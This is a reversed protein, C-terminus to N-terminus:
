KKVNNTKNDTKLGCIETPAPTHSRSCLSPLTPIPGIKKQPDIKLVSNQNYSEFSKLKWVPISIHALPTIIQKTTQKWVVYIQEPQLILVPTDPRSRWPPLM